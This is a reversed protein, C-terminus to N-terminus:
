TGRREGDLWARAAVAHGFGAAAGMGDLMAARVVNGIQALHARDHAVWEALLNGITLDGAEPHRGAIALDGATLGRVTSVGVARIRAFEEILDRADKGNDGRGAAVLDPDWREFLAGPEERVLVIRGLFARLDAEVLHGVIEQASWGGPGPRWQRLAEPMGQLEGWALAPTATLRLVIHELSCGPAPNGTM